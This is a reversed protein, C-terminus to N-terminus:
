ARRRLSASRRTAAAVLCRGTLLFLLTFALGVGLFVLLRVGHPSGVVLTRILLGVPVAVVWTKLLLRIRSARYTRFLAAVGFWTGLLPAANRAFTAALAAENHSRMGILVFAILAIADAAALWRFSTSRDLPPADAAAALATASRSRIVKRSTM